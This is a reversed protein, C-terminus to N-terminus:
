NAAEPQGSILSWCCPQTTLLASVAMILQLWVRCDQCSRQSPLAQFPLQPLQEAPLFPPNFVNLGLCCPRWNASPMNLHMKKFPFANIEILIESFHIGLPRISFIIAQRRGPSLGNDLGITIMKSVCIHTTRGWHTVYQGDPIHNYNWTYDSFM